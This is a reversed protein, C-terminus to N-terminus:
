GSAPEHASLGDIAYRQVFSSVSEPDTAEYSMSAHFVSFSLLIRALWEGADLVDITDRIEGRVRAAELYPILFKATRRLAQTGEGRQLQYFLADRSAGHEVEPHISRIQMRSFEGLQESLTSRRDMALAVETFFRDATRTLAADLLVERSEFYRYLTGRAVGAARAVDAMSLKALTVKRVVEETADLLRRRVETETTEDPEPSRPATTSFLPEAAM